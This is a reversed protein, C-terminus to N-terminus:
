YYPWSGRTADKSRTAIGPTGLLVPCRRVGGVEWTWRVALRVSRSKLRGLADKMADGMQVRFRTLDQSRDVWVPDANGLPQRPPRSPRGSRTWSTRRLAPGFAWLCTPGLCGDDSSVAGHSHQPRHATLATRLGELSCSWGPLFFCSKLLRNM